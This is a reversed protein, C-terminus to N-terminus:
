GYPRPASQAVTQLERWADSSRPPEGTIPRSSHSRRGALAYPRYTLRPGPASSSRGRRYHAAQHAAGLREGIEAWSYGADRLGATAQAIAGSMDDVLSVMHALM